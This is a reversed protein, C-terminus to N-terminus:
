EEGSPQDDPQVKLAKGSRSELSQPHEGKCGLRDRSAEPQSFDFGNLCTNVMWRVPQGDPLPFAPVGPAPARPLRVPQDLPLPEAPSVVCYDAQTGPRVWCRKPETDEEPQACYGHVGDASAGAPLRNLFAQLYEQCDDQVACPTVGLSASVDALLCAGGRGTSWMGAPHQVLTFSASIGQVPDFVVEGPELRLPVSPPQAWAQAACAFLVCAVRTASM